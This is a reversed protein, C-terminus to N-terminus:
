NEPKPKEYKEKLFRLALGACNGALDDRMKADPYRESLKSIETRLDGILSVGETSSLPRGRKVSEEDLKKAIREQLELKKKGLEEYQRDIINKSTALFNASGYHRVALSSHVRAEREKLGLYEGAFAQLYYAMTPSGANRNLFGTPDRKIAELIENSKSVVKRAVEYDKNSSGKTPCYDLALNVQTPENLEGVLDNFHASIYRSLDNNGGSVWARERLDVEELSYVGPDEGTLRKYTELGKQTSPDIAELENLGNAFEYFKRPAYTPKVKREDGELVILGELVKELAM